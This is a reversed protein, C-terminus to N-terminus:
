ASDRLRMFAKEKKVDLFYGQSNFIPGSLDVWPIKDTTLYDGEVIVFHHLSQNFLTGDKFLFDGQIWAYSLEQGFM